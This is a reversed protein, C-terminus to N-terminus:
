RKRHHEKHHSRARKVVQKQDLLGSLVWGCSCMVYWHDVEPLVTASDFGVAHVPLQVGVKGVRMRHSM